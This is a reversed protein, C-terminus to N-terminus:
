ALNQFAELLTMTRAGLEVQTFVIGAQGDPDVFFDTGLGGSWGYRGRRPGETHVAVGYGWGMGDSFGPFFSEPSKLPQRVQDDVMAQHHARSLLPEEGTLRNHFLAPLFTWYDSVTSLLERHSVDFPPVGAYPGGGALEIEVVGGDGQRYAAPLRDLKSPPVWMGTDTMGLPDFLDARLHDHLSRGTIRSILIGLIAFSHHYRWGQGPTLGFPLDALRALWEDAALSSPLPGAETGNAAM